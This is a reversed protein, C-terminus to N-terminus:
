LSWTSLSTPPPIPIPVCTFRHSIWKLTHCFGSCYQLTILRWSIFFIFYFLFYFFYFAKFFFYSEVECTSPQSFNFYFFWIVVVTPISASFDSDEYVTPYFMCHHLWKPFCNSIEEFSKVSNGYLEAIRGRPVYGLSIFVYPWVCVQECINM